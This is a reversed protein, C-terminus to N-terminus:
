QAVTGVQQFRSIRDAYGRALGAHCARSSTCAAQRALLLEVRERRYLYSLDDM